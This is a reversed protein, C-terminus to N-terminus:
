HMNKFEDSMLLATAKKLIEKEMELRKIQKELLQIKQQEPTMAKSLPTKGARERRLQIAWRGIASESVGTAESAQRHTYGQDVVLSAVDSKFDPTFQNNKPM